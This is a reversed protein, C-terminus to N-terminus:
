GYLRVIRLADLKKLWKDYNTYNIFTRSDESMSKGTIGINGNSEELMLTAINLITLKVTDPVNLASWGATYTVTIETNNPWVGQKMRLHNGLVDYETSAIQSGDISVSTVATIPQAFLYLNNYGIGQVYDTRTASEVSYGLYNEVVEQAAKLMNEKMSVVDTADEYNGSYVNFQTVTVIMANREYCLHGHVYFLVGEKSLTRDPCWIAPQIM